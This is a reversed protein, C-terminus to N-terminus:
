GFVGMTSAYSALDTPDPDAKTMSGTFQRFAIEQPESNSVVETKMCSAFAVIAATALIFIKKM